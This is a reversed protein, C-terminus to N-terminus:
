FQFKVFAQATDRDANLNYPGGGFFWTYGLNLSMFSKYRAEITFNTQKRGEVFNGALGPATGKVDHKWVIQPALSIGPLVSEYRILSIIVYGYSLKDPFGKRDQQHPNFRLGDPGIVCTPNTSCAQASGNAGSGDAGASAHTYTGPAELQLVDLSPLDPVWTAGTEFLMLVQDAGIPNDTAGAVYTGGLNFQYTDFTEWGRLYGPNRHNLPSNRDSGANTGIVQGRYPILYSPFSRGSGTMHGVLLDYTDCPNAQNTRCDSYADSSGYIGLTGDPMTGLGGIPGGAPLGLVSGLATVNALLGQLLQGLRPDLGPVALLDTVTGTLDGTGACEVTTGCNSLTPGFASFILDELDVQLPEDPRYAVEGQISFEGVTTNFSLGFMKLDEPYELQIRVSDFNVASGINTRGDDGNQVSEPGGYGPLASTLLSIGPCALLFELTNSTNKSCATTVSYASVMPLRSHYNAFYAGLETGDNLWEAYYKLSVGYQGGNEPNKDRLRYGTGSTNTLGSLPNDLLRALQDPDDPAQGFSLNFHDVANYSGLDVFSYFSGPAPIELPVWEYQYFAEITGNEFPEMSLYAMGVPQFVEEVQFGTRFFNNANIPNITNLSSFVLLTSEGWNLNQRGIKFTAEKDGWLPLRGYFYADLLQLDTGIQRLTEGDDRKQHVDGGPGYLIYCPGVGGPATRGPPCPRSDNRPLPLVETGLGTANGVQLYNDQTIRNPNHDTFDNNYFDYFYLGKIFVGFDGMSATFDQTVKIPAQVIEGKQYNLNGDDANITYQGPFQALRAAAFSQDKFLGQCSQYYTRGTDPDRGCLGPNLSAKGVLDSSRKEMRWSAGATITTNLVGEIQQGDEGWPLEFSIASAIGSWALVSFAALATLSRHSRRAITM